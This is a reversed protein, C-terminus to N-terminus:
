RQKNITLQPGTPGEGVDIVADSFREGLERDVILVTRDQHKVVHDNETPSDVNLAMRNEQEQLRMGQDPSVGSGELSTVLIARARETVEIMDVGKSLRELTEWHVIREFASHQFFRNVSSATVKVARNVASAADPASINL